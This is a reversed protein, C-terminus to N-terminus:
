EIELEILCLKKFKVECLKKVLINIISIDLFDKKQMKCKLKDIVFIIM